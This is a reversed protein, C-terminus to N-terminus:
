ILDKIQSIDAKYFNLGNETIGKKANLYFYKHNLINSMSFYANNQKDELRIEIVRSNIPM